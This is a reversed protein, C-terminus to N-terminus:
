AAGKECHALHQTGCPGCPRAPNTEQADDGLCGCAPLFCDDAPTVWWRRGCKPCTSRGAHVAPEPDDATDAPWLETIGFARRIAEVEAFPEDGHVEAAPMKEGTEPDTCIILDDPMTM